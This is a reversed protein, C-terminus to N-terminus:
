QFTGSLSDLACNLLVTNVRDRRFIGWAGKQSYRSIIETLKKAQNENMGRATAIRGAQLLASQESIEPDLGSGSAFLMELPVPSNQGISNSQQFAVKRQIVSDKLANSAPSLNSGGSPLTNYGTASPRPWFYRPNAFSQGILRSGVIKGNKVLLSGNSQDKFFIQAILTVTLPYVIGTIITLGLIVLFARMIMKMFIRM